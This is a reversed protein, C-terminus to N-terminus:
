IIILDPNSGSFVNLIKPEKEPDIKFNIANEETQEELGRPSIKFHRIEKDNYIFLYKKNLLFNPKM